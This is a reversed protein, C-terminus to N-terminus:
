RISVLYTWFSDGMRVELDVHIVDVEVQCFVMGRVEQAAMEVAGVSRHRGWSCIVVTYRERLLTSM